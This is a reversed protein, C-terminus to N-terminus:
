ALTYCAIAAAAAANLSDVGAAMPIRVPTTIELVQASLGARESGIVLARRGQPHIERIDTASPDPTLSYITRDDM